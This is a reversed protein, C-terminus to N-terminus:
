RDDSGLAARVTHLFELVDDGVAVTGDILGDPLEALLGPPRGALFVARAGAARARQATSAADAQYAADSGALIVTPHDAGSVAREISADPDPDAVTIGGASLLNRTFLTRASASAPSGVTIMLVPHTALRDRLMEFPEAWRRARRVQQVPRRGPLQDPGEFPNPFESVGTMAQRRTAIRRDREAHIAATRAALSGDALAALIGGSQEIRGFEAWAVEALDATLMEVAHAGGAPDTVAALHSEGILLASINRAMRRGFEEPVGLATDFPLVTVAAAGGVGAAFAAVTTRLLNVWPDYRSLMTRSTVAHQRQGRATPGAGSLEAVRHWAFRAARLKAITPFQEDTAAYRFDILGCATDIDIGTETLARLCAAGAALTYGIEAADGAGADHAITGDVVIARVGLDAAVTLVEPLDRFVTSAHRDATGAARAIGDGFLGARAVGGIPDAGLNGDPHMRTSRARGLQALARGAAPQIDSPEAGIVVPAM